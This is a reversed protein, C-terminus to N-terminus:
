PEFLPRSRGSCILGAPDHIALLEGTEPSSYYNVFRNPNDETGSGEKTITEIVSIIRSTRFNGLM